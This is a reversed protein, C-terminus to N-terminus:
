LWRSGVHRCTHQDCRCRSKRRWASPQALLLGEALAAKLQGAAHECGPAGVLVLVLVSVSELGLDRRDLAFQPLQELVGRRLAFAGAPVAPEGVVEEIEPGREPGEHGDFADLRGVISGFTREAGRDDM